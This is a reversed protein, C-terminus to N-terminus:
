APVAILVVLGYMKLYTKLLPMPMLQRKKEILDAHNCLYSDGSLSGFDAQSVSEWGVDASRLQWVGSTETAIYICGDTEVADM